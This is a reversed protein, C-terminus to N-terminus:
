SGANSAILSKMSLLFALFSTKSSSLKFTSVLRMNLGNVGSIVSKVSEEGALNLEGLEDNIDDISDDIILGYDFPFLLLLLLPWLLPLLLPPLLLFLLFTLLCYLLKDWDSPLM